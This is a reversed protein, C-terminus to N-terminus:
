QGAFFLPYKNFKLIFQRTEAFDKCIGNCTDACTMCKEAIEWDIVQTKGSFTRIVKWSTKDKTLSQQLVVRKKGDRTKIRVVRGYDISVIRGDKQRLTGSGEGPPLGSVIEFGIGVSWGKNKKETM